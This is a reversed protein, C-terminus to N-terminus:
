DSHLPRRRLDYLHLAAETVSVARTTLNAIGALSSTIRETSVQGDPSVTVQARESFAETGM